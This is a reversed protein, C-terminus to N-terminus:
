HVITKMFVVWFGQGCSNSKGSFIGLLCELKNLSMTLLSSNLIMWFLSSRKDWAFNELRTYYERTLCTSERSSPLSMPMATVWLYKVLSSLSALSLRELKNTRTTRLSFFTRFCKWRTKPKATTPSLLLSSVVYNESASMASSASSPVIPPLM